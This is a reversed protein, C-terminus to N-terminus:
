NDSHEDPFPLAPQGTFRKGRVDTLSQDIKRIANKWQKVQDQAQILQNLAEDKQQILQFEYENEKVVMQVEKYRDIFKERLWAMFAYQKTISGPKRNKSTISALWSNLDFISLCRMQYQKGDAGTTTSLRYLQGYFEHSKLWNDQSNFAVDIIECVTRVPIMRHGDEIPCTLNIDQFTLTIPTLKTVESM